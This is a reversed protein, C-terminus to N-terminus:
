GGFKQRLEFKLVKGTGGRPLAPVKIMYLPWKFKALKEELFSRIKEIDLESGDKIKVFASGVEGWKKDPVGIIAVEEIENMKHLEDEIEAPYVNEGGSIYMDKIRDKIYIFQEDDIKGIDGAHWIEDAQKAYKIIAKDIYSHTDSLLLIKKM